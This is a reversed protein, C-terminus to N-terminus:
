LGRLSLPRGFRPPRRIRRGDKRTHAVAGRAREGSRSPHNNRTLPSPPPGTNWGSIETLAVEIGARRVRGRLIEVTRDLAGGIGGEAM